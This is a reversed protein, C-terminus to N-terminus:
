SDFSVPCLGGGQAGFSTVQGQYLRIGEFLIKGKYTYFRLDSKFTEYNGDVDFNFTQPPAIEQAIGDEQLIRLLVKKSISKGNYVSKGGFSNKLKFFYLKRDKWLEDLTITSNLEITKLLNSKLMSFKSEPHNRLFNNCDIYRQKDVKLIYERPHPSLNIKNDIYIKQLKASATSNLKFDCYRNYIFDYDSNENVQSFELIESSWGWKKMFYQYVLFEFFMKQEYIHEDIIAVKKPEQLFNESVFSNKLNKISNLIDAKKRFMNQLLLIGYGSANSNVEILSLSQKELSFHFDYSTLLSGDSKDLALISKEYDSLNNYYSSIFESNHTLEEFLSIFAQAKDFLSQPLTLEHPSFVFSLEPHDKLYLGLNADLHSVYQCINQFYDSM